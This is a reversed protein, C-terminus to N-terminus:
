GFAGLERLSYHKFHGYKTGKPAAEWDTAYQAYMLGREPWWTGM